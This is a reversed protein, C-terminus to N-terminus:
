QKNIVYCLYTGQNNHVNDRTGMIGVCGHIRVFKRKIEKKPLKYSKKLLRKEKNQCYRSNISYNQM